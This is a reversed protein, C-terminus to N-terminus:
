KVVEVPLTVDVTKPPLCMRDNCAQYRLKGPLAAMGPPANAPVKFKTVIDFDGSYVSLPKDSFTYKEMQPKPYVVEGAELPAATWTLKLPILYDDSPTNSNCHYGQRLQVVLKAQVTTGAKAVVRDPPAIQLVSGQSFCLQAAM